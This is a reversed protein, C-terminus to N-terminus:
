RSRGHLKNTFYNVAHEYLNEPKIKIVDITFDILCQELGDPVTIQKSKQIQNETNNNDNM